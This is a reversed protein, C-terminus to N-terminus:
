RALDHAALWAAGRGIHDRNRLEIILRPQHALSALADFLAYWNIAGDGPAWHRDFQGDSDQLHVHGLLEGAARVWGDPTPGGALHTIYAHGTDISLRVHESNFSRIVALLPAPNKDQIDEIMLTIHAQQALPLVPEIVAQILKIQDAQEFAASHPLFPGGFFIFPSHCVLHSAGLAAGFEIAQRLRDTMLARARPDRSLLTLGDYPGHIGLRGTYGDLTARAQRVLGSWDGDLLEPRIAVDQIELDRQGELLWDRYTPLLAIPMAAGVVPRVGGVM